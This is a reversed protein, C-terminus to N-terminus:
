VIWSREQLRCQHLQQLVFLLAESDPQVDTVMEQVPFQDSFRQVWWFLRLLLQRGLLNILLVWCYDQESSARLHDAPM